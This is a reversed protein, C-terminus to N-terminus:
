GSVKGGWVRFRAHNPTSIWRFILAQLKEEDGAAERVLRNYETIPMDALHKGGGPGNVQGLERAQKASALAQDAYQQEVVLNDVLTTQVVGDTLIARSRTLKSKM